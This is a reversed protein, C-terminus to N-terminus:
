WVVFRQALVCLTNRSFVFVCMRVCVLHLVRPYPSLSVQPVQFSRTTLPWQLWLFRSSYGSKRDPRRSLVGIVSMKTGRAWVKLRFFPKEGWYLCCIAANIAARLSIPQQHTEMRDATIHLRCQLWCPLKKSLIDLAAIEHRIIEESSMNTEALSRREHVKVRVNLLVNKNGKKSTSEIYFYM